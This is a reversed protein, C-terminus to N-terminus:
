RGIDVGTIMAQLSVVDQHHRNMGPVETMAHNVFLRPLYFIGAFWCVVFIIHLAKVWLM